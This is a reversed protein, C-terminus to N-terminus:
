VENTGQHVPLFHDIINPYEERLGQFNQLTNKQVVNSEHRLFSNNLSSGGKAISRTSRLTGEVKLEIKWTKGSVERKKRRLSYSNMAM